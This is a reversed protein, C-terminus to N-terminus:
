HIKLFIESWLRQNWGVEDERFTADKSGREEQRKSESSMIIVGRNEEQRVMFAPM